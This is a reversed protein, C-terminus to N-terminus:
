LSLVAMPDKTLFALPLPRNLANALAVFSNFPSLNVLFTAAMAHTGRLYGIDSRYFAYAKTVQVLDEYLPGGLQFIKLERFISASDTQIRRFLIAFNNSEDDLSSERIAQEADKVRGLARTFTDETVSLGNGFCKQRCM